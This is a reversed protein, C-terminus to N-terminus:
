SDGWAELAVARSWAVLGILSQRDESCLRLRELAAYVMGEAVLADEKAQAVDERGAAIQNALTSGHEVKAEVVAQSKLRRYSAETRGKETVAERYEGEAKRRELSARMSAAKAERYDYPTLGLVAEPVVEVLEGTDPDALVRM